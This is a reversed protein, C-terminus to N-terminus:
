PTQLLQILQHNDSFLSDVGYDLLMKAQHLDNVTYCYLRQFQQKLQKIRNANTLCEKNLNFSTAQLADFTDCIIAKTQPWTQEFHDMQVLLGIDINPFIQRATQLTHHCFSSLIIPMGKDLYPLIHQCTIKALATGQQSYQDPNLWNTANATKLEINCGMNDQYLQALAQDLSPIYIDETIASLQHNATILQLQSLPYDSVCGSKGTTRALTHDHFVVPKNDQSLQVDFEVWDFGIKKAESFAALTNEPAIRNAGRHSVVPPLIPM